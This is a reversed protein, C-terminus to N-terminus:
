DKAGERLWDQVNRALVEVDREELIHQIVRPTIKLNNMATEVRKWLQNRKRDTDALYLETVMEQLKNLMITDRHEYYRNVIGKQHKSLEAM